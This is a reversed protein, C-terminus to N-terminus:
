SNNNSNNNQKPWYFLLQQWNLRNGAPVSSEQILGMFFRSILLWWTLSFVRLPRGTGITHDNEPGTNGTSTSGKNREWDISETTAQTFTCTDCEFDCSCITRGPSKWNTFTPILISLFTGVFEKKSIKQTIQSQFFYISLVLKLIFSLSIIKLYPLM